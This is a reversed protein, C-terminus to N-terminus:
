FFQLKVSIDIKRSLHICLMCYTCTHVHFRKCEGCVLLLLLLFLVLAPSHCVCVLDVLLKSLNIYM